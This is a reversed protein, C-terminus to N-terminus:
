EVDGNELALKWKIDAEVARAYRDIKDADAKV